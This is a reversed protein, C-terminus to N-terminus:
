VARRNKSLQKLSWEAPQGGANLAEMVMRMFAEREGTRIVAQERAEALAPPYGWGRACGDYVVAHVLDLLDPDDGVWAPVEIRAIESGVNLYVFQVSTGATYHRLVPSRSAFRASREGPRLHEMLARDTLPELLDRACEGDQCVPCGRQRAADLEDFLGRQVAPPIAGAVTEVPRPLSSAAGRPCAALRLLNIVERGNPRSVYSCVPVGLRRFEELGAAYGAIAAAVYEEEAARGSLQWLLLTGDVIAVAPRADRLDHALDLARRQEALARQLDVLAGHVPVRGDGDLYLDDDRYFLSAQSSLEAAPNAGYRLIAAGINILFCPVLGHRDLDISSGDTAVVTVEPPLIPAPHAVCLPELPEAVLWPQEDRVLDRLEDLRDDWTRLLSLALRRRRDLARRRLGAEQAMASIQPAVQLLNLSM